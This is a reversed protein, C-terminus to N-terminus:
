HVADANTRQNSFLNSYRNSSKPPRIPIQKKNDNDHPDNPDFRGPIKSSSSSERIRHRATSFHPPHDQGPIEQYHSLNRQNQYNYSGPNDLLPSARPKSKFNRQNRLFSTHNSQVSGNNPGFNNNNNMNQDDHLPKFDNDNMKEQHESQQRSISIQYKSAQKNLTPPAYRSNGDSDWGNENNHNFLNSNPRNQIIQNKNRENRINFAM